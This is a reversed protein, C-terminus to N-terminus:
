LSNTGPKQYKILYNAAAKLRKIDDRFVGLGYNCMYCLLGRIKGTKHDHDIALNRKKPPHGCIACVGNQQALIQLYDEQTIGFKKMLHVKRATQKVRDPHKNRYEKIRRKAKIPHAERWAKSKAAKKRANRAHYDKYYCKKCMGLAFYPLDAHCKPVIM